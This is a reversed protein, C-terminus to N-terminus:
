FGIGSLKPQDQQNPNQNHPHPTTPQRIRHRQSHQRRRHRPIHHVGRDRHGAPARLAGAPFERRMHHHIVHQRQRQEGGLVVLFHEGPQGRGQGPPAAPVRAPLDGGGATDGLGPLPQSGLRQGLHELLDRDRDGLFQGWAREEAAPPQHADVTELPVGGVAVLVDRLESTGAARPLFSRRKRLHPHQGNGFAGGVRHDGGPDAPLM